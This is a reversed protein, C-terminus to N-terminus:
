KDEQGHKFGIDYIAAHNSNLGDKIKEGNKADKYGIDYSTREQQCSMCPYRYGTCIICSFTVFKHGHVEKISIM